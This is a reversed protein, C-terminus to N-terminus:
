IPDRPGVPLFPIWFYVRVKVRTGLPECTWVQVAVSLHM